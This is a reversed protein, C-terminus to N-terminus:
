LKCIDQEVDIPPYAERKNLDFRCGDNLMDLKLGLLGISNNSTTGHASSYKLDSGDIITVGGSGVVEFTDDPAIFISTDEDIGVGMLFPNLAVASLLRGLRNRQSFHQDIILVNSLGLGPALTAGGETPSQGSEGGTIMHQSMISAGASTGAIHVGRANVKRITQAVVTGGLITSLRLQNGGTIFIGTADECRKAFEPNNCDERSVIPIHSVMEVGLNIFIKEYNEGTDDLRSATPIIVIRAESGGSIETFKKLISPNDDKNEAGGIPIIYGRQQGDEVNAPCM